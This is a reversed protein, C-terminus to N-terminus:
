KLPLPTWQESSVLLAFELSQKQTIGRLPVTFLLSQSLNKLTIM